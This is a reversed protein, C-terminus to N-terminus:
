CPLIMSFPFDYLMLRGSGGLMIKLVLLVDGRVILLALAEVELVPDPALPLIELPSLSM